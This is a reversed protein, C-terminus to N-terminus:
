GEREQRGRLGKLKECKKGWTIGPKMSSIKKRHFFIKLSFNYARLPQIM